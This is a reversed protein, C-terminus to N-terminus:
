QVYRLVQGAEGTFVRMLAEAAPVGQKRASDIFSYAAAFDDAGKKTRFSGFVKRM